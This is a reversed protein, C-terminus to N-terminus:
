DSLSTAAPAAAEADRLTLAADLPSFPHEGRAAPDVDSVLFLQLAEIYGQFVAHHLALFELAHGPECWAILQRLAAVQGAAAAKHLTAM